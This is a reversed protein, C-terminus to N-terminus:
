GCRTTSRWGRPCRDAPPIIYLSIDRRQDEASPLLLEACIRNAIPDDVEQGLVVIRQHMLRTALQDDFPGAITKESAM